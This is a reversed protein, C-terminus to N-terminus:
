LIFGLSLQKYNVKEKQILNNRLRYKFFTTLIDERTEDVNFPTFEVPPVGKITEHAFKCVFVGCDKANTQHPVKVQLNLQWGGFSASTTSNSNNRESNNNNNNTHTSDFRNQLKQFFRRRGEMQNLSDFYEVTREHTRVVVLAWHHQSVYYIPILVTAAEPLNNPLQTDNHFKIAETAAFSTSTDRTNNYKSTLYEFYDNILNWANQRCYRSGAGNSLTRVDNEM